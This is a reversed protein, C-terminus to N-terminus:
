NHDTESDLPLGMLLILANAAQRVANDFFERSAMEPGFMVEMPAQTLMYFIVQAHLMNAWALMTAESLDPRIRRMFEMDGTLNPKFIERALISQASSPSCLERLAIRKKWDTSATCFFDAFMQRTTIRIIEAQGQPSGMLEPHMEAVDNLNHRRDNATAYQFAAVYLQEKSGFHYHIGGLNVQAADAIMRTSVADFGHEAFLQCAAELLAQRTNKQNTTM